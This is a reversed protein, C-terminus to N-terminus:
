TYCYLTCASDLSFIYPLLDLSNLYLYGLKYTINFLYIFVLVVNIWYPILCLCRSAKMSVSNFVLVVLSLLFYSQPLRVASYPTTFWKSRNNHTRYDIMLFHACALKLSLFNLNSLCRFWLDWKNKPVRYIYHTGCFM